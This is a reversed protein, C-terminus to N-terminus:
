IRAEHYFPSGDESDVKAMISDTNNGEGLALQGDLARCVIAMETTTVDIVSDNLVERVLELGFVRNVDEAVGFGCETQSSPAFSFSTSEALASAGRLTSDM